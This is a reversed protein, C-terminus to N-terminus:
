SIVQRPRKDSYIAITVRDSGHTSGNEACGSSLLRRIEDFFIDKVKEIHVAEKHYVDATDSYKFRGPEVQLVYSNVQREWFWDACGYQIYEPEAAPVAMLESLLKGGEFSDEICLAIYAIRYRILRGDDLAPLPAINHPDLKGPYAFHGYCCQLTFCYPLNAFDEIIDVIPADLTSLDLERLSRERQEEFGADEVIEKAATLTQLSAGRRDRDAKGREAGTRFEEPIELEASGASCEPVAAALNHVREYPVSVFVVDPLVEAHAPRDLRRLHRQHARQRHCLRHGCAYLAPSSWRCRSATGYHDLSIIRCAQEANVLFVVLDPRVEAEAVPGILIRESLGTPAAAALEMMRHFSTISHTLKERPDSVV